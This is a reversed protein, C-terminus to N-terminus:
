QGLAAQYFAPTLASHDATIDAARVVLMVMVLCGLLIAVAALGDNLKACLGDLDRAFTTLHQKM